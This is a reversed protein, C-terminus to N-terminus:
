KEKSILIRLLWLVPQTLIVVLVLRLTHHSAVYAVDVNMALAVLSMETFGGPAFAFIIAVLDQGLARHMWLAMLITVSLMALSAGLGFLLARLMARATTGVFRFGITAGLVLQALVVIERPPASELWGSLHLAASVFLPGVLAPAPLRLRPALFYGAVGAAALGLLELRPIDAFGAAPGTTEGATLGLFLRSWLAILCIVVFIRAAHALAVQRDDAGMERAMSTVEAMGGPMACLLATRQDLGALKQYYVMVILAVVVIYVAVLSLSVAWAGLDDLLEPMFASGLMVGLVALTPNRVQTPADIPVQALAALTTFVMAGLLWPLPMSLWFFVAGGIGAIVFTTGIRLARTLVQSVRAVLRGIHPPRSSQTIFRDPTM